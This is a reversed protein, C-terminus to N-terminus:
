FYSRGTDTFRARWCYDTDIDLLLDPVNFLTLQTDSTAMSFSTILIQLRNRRAPNPIALKDASRGSARHMTIMAMRYRYFSHTQLEATYRYSMPQLIRSTLLLIPKYLNWLQDPHRGLNYEELNDTLDMEM